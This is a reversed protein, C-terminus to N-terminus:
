VSDVSHLHHDGTGAVGALIRVVSVAAPRHTHPRPGTQGDAALGEGDLPPVGEGEM